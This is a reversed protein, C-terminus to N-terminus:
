VQRPRSRMGVAARAVDLASDPAAFGGSPNQGFRDGGEAGVSEVVAAASRLTRPDALGNGEVYIFVDGAGLSASHELVKDISVIFDSGSPVFDNPETKSGVKTAGLVGFVTVVAIVVLAAYRMRVIAAVATGARAMSQGAINPGSPAGAEAAGRVLSRRTWWYPVAILFVAYAVVAGAGLAPLGILAVIVVAALVSAILMRFGAAIRSPVKESAAPAGALGEEIRLLFLPALLGLMVFAAGLAIAAGFGFQIVGPIGSTANSGFAISSTSFALALAGGVTAIGVVYASRHSKGDVLQERCRGVAHIMFDVGFSMTAIPVIVDLIISQEFGVINSLMRAWLLTMALGFGAIAGAWYSRLLLGVLLVILMIAGLLYPLTANFSEDDTLSSDIAVGWARYFREDGRLVDQADRAYKEIEVDRADDLDAQESETRTAPDSEKEADIPFASHDIRVTTLFAPSTWLEVERGGGTTMRVAAHKSLLDRLGATPGDESLVNALVQKVQENSAAELGGPVDGGRLEADVADAISYIGSVTLDLDSDFYTSMENSLDDSARLEQSNRRWERLTELDLADGGEDEVLFLLETTSPRFTRKVLKETDFEEGSPNFSADKDPALSIGALVLVASVAVLVGVVLGVRTVMTHLLREIISDPQSTQTTM